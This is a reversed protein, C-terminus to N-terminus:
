CKVMFIFCFHLLFFFVISSYFLGFLFYSHFYWKLYTHFAIFTVSKTIKVDIFYQSFLIGCICVFECVYVCWMHAIYTHVHTHTTTFIILSLIFRYETYASLINSVLLKKKELRQNYYQNVIVLLSPGKVVVIVMIFFINIKNIYTHIHTISHIQTHKSCCKSTDMKTKYVHVRTFDHTRYVNLCQKLNM